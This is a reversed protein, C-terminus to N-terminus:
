PTKNHSHLHTPTKQWTEWKTSFAASTRLLGAMFVPVQSGCVAKWKICCPLREPSQKQCTSVAQPGPSRSTDPGAPHSSISCSSASSSVRLTWHTPKTHNIIPSFVHMKYKVLFANGRRIKGKRWGLQQTSPSLSGQSSFPVQALLRTSNM